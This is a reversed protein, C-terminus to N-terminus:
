QLAPKMASMCARSRLFRCIWLTFNDPPGYEVDSYLSRMVNASPTSGSLTGSATCHYRALSLPRKSRMLPAVLMAYRGLASSMIVDSPTAQRGHVASVPRASPLANKALELFTLISGSSLMSTLCRMALEYASNLIRSSDSFPELRWSISTRVGVAMLILSSPLVCILSPYLWVKLIMRDMWRRLVKTNCSLSLVTSGIATSCTYSRSRTASVARPNQAMAILRGCGACFGTMGAASWSAAAYALRLRLSSFAAALRSMHFSWGPVWASGAAGPRWPLRATSCRSRNVAVLLLFTTGPVTCSAPPEPCGNACGDAHTRSPVAAPLPPGVTPRRVLAAAPFLFCCACARPHTM